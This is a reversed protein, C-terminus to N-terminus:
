LSPPLWARTQGGCLSLQQTAGLLDSTTPVQGDIEGIREEGKKGDAEVIKRADAARTKNSATSKDSM